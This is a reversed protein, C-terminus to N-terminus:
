GLILVSPNRSKARVIALRQKRGDSLAVGLVDGGGLYRRMGM